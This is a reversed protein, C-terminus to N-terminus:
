TGGGTVAAVAADQQPSSAQEMPEAFRTYDRGLTKRFIDSAAFVANRKIASQLFAVLFPRTTKLAEAGKYFSLVHLAYGLLTDIEEDGLDLFDGDAVLPVLNRVGDVVVPTGLVTADAPYIAIETLGVPAWYVPTAPAGATATTTGEWNPLTRDFGMISSMVLYTAGVKVRTSKTMTGGVYLYPDNPVTTLAPDSTGQWTGTILSWVRLGENIARRAQDATWFPQGEYRASLRTKLQALTTTQYAM